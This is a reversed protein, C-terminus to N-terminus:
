QLFVKEIRFKIDFTKISSSFIDEFEPQIGILGPKLLKGNYKRLLGYSGQKGNLM